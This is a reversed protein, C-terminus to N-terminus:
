LVVCRTKVTMPAKLHRIYLIGEVAENELDFCATYVFLRLCAGSVSRTCLGIGDPPFQLRSHNLDIAVGVYAMIV